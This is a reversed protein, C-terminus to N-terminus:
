DACDFANVQVCLWWCTCVDDGVVGVVCGNGVDWVGGM